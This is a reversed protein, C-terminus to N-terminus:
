LVWAIRPATDSRPAAIVEGGRTTLKYTQRLAEDFIILQDRPLPVKPRLVRHADNLAAFDAITRWRFPAGGRFTVEGTEYVHKLEALASGRSAGPAAALKELVWVASLWQVGPVVKSFDKEAVIAGGVRNQRPRAM